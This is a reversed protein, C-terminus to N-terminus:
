STGRIKAELERKEEETLKMQKLRPGKGTRKQRKQGEDILKQGKSRLMSVQAKNWPMHAANQESEQIPSGRKRRVVLNRKLLKLEKEAQEVSQKDLMAQLKEREEPTLKRM